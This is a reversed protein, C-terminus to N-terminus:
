VAPQPQAAPIPPPVPAFIPSPAPAATTAPAAATGTAKPAPKAVKRYSSECHALAEKDDKDDGQFLPVSRLAFTGGMHDIVLVNVLRDVLVASLEDGVQYDKGPTTPVVATVANSAVTITAKAGSGSGGTLSVDTYIGNRYAKGGTISGVGAIGGTVAPSAPSTSTTPAVPPTLPAASALSPAPATPATLTTVPVSFGSGANAPSTVIAAFPETDDMSKMGRTHKHDAYFYVIQGIKGAPATGTSGATSTTAM